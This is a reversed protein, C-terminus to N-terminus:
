GRLLTNRTTTQTVGGVVTTVTVRVALTHQRHILARAPRTMAMHAYGSHGRSAVYRSSGLTVTPSRRSTMPRCGRGCRAAHARGRAKRGHARPKPKPILTLSVTGRCGTLASAPCTIQISVTGDRAVTLPASSIYVVPARPRAPHSVPAPSPKVPSVPGPAPAPAPAPPPASAPAPTPAPPAPPPPPPPAPATTFAQDSGYTTGTANHSVARYHYTTSPSLNSLDASLPQDTASPAPTQDPTSSGYLTDTGWQFHADTTQSRANITGALTAATPGVASAGGTLAAPPTTIRGIANGAAETFWMNGDPGAVIDTPASSGTPVPVELLSGDPALRGISNTGTECFWVAGDPGVAIGEPQASTSGLSVESVTGSPAIHGLKGVGETFWVSGDATLALDTPFSNATPISTRQNVGTPSMHVVDGAAQETIWASGDSAVVIGNPGGNSTPLPKDTILGAPTVHGVRGASQETFYLSGDPAVAIALPASNATPVPYETVTGTPGVRGIKNASQETFWLSGDPTAAIDLPSNGSPVPHASFVGAPTLGGIRNGAAEASWLAGDAGATIGIPQSSPNPLPHESVTPTIAALADAPSVAGAALALAAALVGLPRRASM